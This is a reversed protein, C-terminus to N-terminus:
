RGHGGASSGGGASSSSSAAAATSGSGSSPASAMGSSAAAAGSYGGSTAPASNGFGGGGGGSNMVPPPAYYYGMIQQPSYLCYGWYPDCIRGGYPIYTILGFYPNWRWTGCPNSSVYGAYSYGSCPNRGSSNMYVDRAASLSANAQISGRQMSWRDLPDTFGKDFKEVSATASTLDLMKGSGVEIRREGITVDAQGAFVKIRAPEADLRYDGSKVLAITADKLVVTLSNGSLLELVQVVASGKELEVRTDIFRSTIMRLTSNEGLRVSVGGQMLAEARGEETRVKGNEKVYPFTAVIPDPVIEDNVYVTGEIYDVMGSKSPAVPQASAPLAVLALVAFVFVAVCVRKM